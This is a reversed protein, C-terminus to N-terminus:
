YHKKEYKDQNSHRRGHTTQIQLGNIMNLVEDIDTAEANVLNELEEAKALLRINETKMQQNTEMLQTKWESIDRVKNKEEKLQNRLLGLERRLDEAKEEKAVNTKQNSILWQNEVKIQKIELRLKTELSELEDVHGM